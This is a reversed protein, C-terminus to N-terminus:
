DIDLRRQSKDSKAKRKPARRFTTGTQRIPPMDITAGDLLEEVTLLQIRPHNKKTWPSNYFGATAAEARMKATPEDMSILVGLAAKDREVVGRLDRVDTAKLKGSKVSLIALKTKGGEGEDHFYLRGDIGKDAGKGKASKRAYVLGLAWHEFQHTDESALQKAGELDLPEGTVTYDRRHVLAFADHLRHKILGVALHTVDIGIWERGLHQAAAITTGCGCFPDLIVDGDDSSAKIIRELLEEPKQTPYGLREQAQSGIAEIDTWLNDVPVGPNDGPRVKRRPVGSETWFMDGRKDLAALKQKTMRWGSTGPTYGKYEYVLNPRSGM